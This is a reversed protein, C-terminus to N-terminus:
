VPVVYRSKNMSIKAPISALIEEKLIEILRQKVFDRHVVISVERM